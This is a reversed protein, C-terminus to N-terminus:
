LRQIIFCINAALRGREEFPSLIGRLLDERRSGRFRVICFTSCRASCPLDSQFQARLAVAEVKLNMLFSQAHPTIRELITPM